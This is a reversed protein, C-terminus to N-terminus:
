VFARIDVLPFAIKCRWIPDKTGHDCAAGPKSTLPNQRDLPKQGDTPLAGASPRPQTVHGM